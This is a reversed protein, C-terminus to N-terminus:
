AWGGHHRDDDDEDGEAHGQKLSRLQDSDPPGVAVLFEAFAEAEDCTLHPGLDYWCHGTIATGLDYAAAAVADTIEGHANPDAATM